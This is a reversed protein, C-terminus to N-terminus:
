PGGEPEPDAVVQHFVLEASLVGAIGRIAEIRELIATDGATELVVVIKGAASHGRV